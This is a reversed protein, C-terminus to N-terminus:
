GDKCKYHVSKFSSHMGDCVRFIHEYVKSKPDRIPSKTPNFVTYTSLGATVDARKNYDVVILAWQYDQSDGYPIRVPM